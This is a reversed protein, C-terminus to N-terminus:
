SNKILPIRAIYTDNSIQFEPAATTLLKYRNIINKLGVGTSPMRQVRIQLNNKVVLYNNADMFLDIVLPEDISITNHKVANEILLQLTLPAILDNMAEAPLKINIKLKDEFRIKLLFSFSNAFEIETKLPVLEKDKQELLYRYSRALQDIFKESLDPDIHVLSSLVNLSNFLFHPNVQNKLSEFQAQAVGKEIEERESKVRETIDRNSWIRGVVKGDITQPVSICELVRKNKFRAILHISDHIKHNSQEIIDWVEEANEISRIAQGLVISKKRSALMDDNLRWMQKFASNYTVINDDLDTLLIGETTSEIIGKNFSLSEKTAQEAEHRIIASAIIENCIRLTTTDEDSWKRNQFLTDYGIFGIIEGQSQMPLLLVSKTSDQEFLERNRWAELPLEDMNTIKIIRNNLFEQYMWYSDKLSVGQQYFLSPIKDAEDSLWEFLCNWHDKKKSLVFAYVRDVKAFQGLENLSLKLANPLPESLFVKSLDLLLQYSQNQAMLKQDSIVRSTVDRVTAIFGQVELNGLANVVRTEVHKVDGTKTILRYQTQFPAHLRSPLRSFDKEVRDKDDPHIWLFPDIQKSEEVTYGSLAEISPSTFTVQGKVNVVQIVDDVKELLQEYYQAYRLEIEKLQKAKFNRFYLILNIATLMISLILFAIHVNAVFENLSPLPDIPSLVSYSYEIGALILISIAYGLLLALGFYRYLTNEWSYRKPIVKFVLFAGQWIIMIFIFNASFNNLLKYATHDTFISTHIFVVTGFLLASFVQVKWPVISSLYPDTKRNM